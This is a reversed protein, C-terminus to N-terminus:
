YYGSAGVVATEPLNEHDRLTEVTYINTYINPSLVMFSLFKDTQSGKSTDLLITLIAFLTSVMILSSQMNEFLFIMVEKYIFCVGIFVVVFCSPWSPGTVSVQAVYCKSLRIWFQDFCVNQDFNLIIIVFNEASKAWHGLKQYWTVWNWVQGLVWWSLCKTCSEHHNSSFIHGSSHYCSKVSIQGPSRTKSGLHELKSSSRSIM